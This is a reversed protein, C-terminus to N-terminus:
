KTFACEWNGSINLPQEAKKGGVFATVVLKYSGSDIDDLLINVAAQGNTVETSEAAGEKVVKGNADVIRYAAIGLKEVERYPFEQPISFTALVTLENGNVTVRMDIEDTAQEYSTGVIAGQWNTIDRFYGQLVGTAALATASLTLCLAVAIFVAAPKRFFANHKNTKMLIEKRSNSIQTKCNGVIRRKVEEPMTITEAASKLKAYDM